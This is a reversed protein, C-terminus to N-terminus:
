FFSFGFLLSATKYDTYFTPVDVIHRSTSLRFELSLFDNFKFGLGLMYNLSSRLELNNGRSFQLEKDIESDYVILANAFLKSQDNFFFYHRLGFPFEISSYKITSVQNRSPQEVTKQFKQYTPEFIIGWKNRNFPLIIEIEAGFRFNLESGFDTNRTTSGGDEIILSSRNIGPRLTFHLKAKAGKAFYNVFKSEVCNNYKIFVEVLDDGSYSLNRIDPRVQEDCKLNNFLQGKYDENIGVRNGSTRYKKYVLQQVDSGRNQFFYRRINKENYAYLTAEGEVLVKLFLTDREFDPQREWSMDRVIESSRDIDVIFRRFKSYNDIGFEKVTEISKSNVESDASSKYKFETPNNKWDSNKILCAERENNETIFYGPEFKVQALCSTSYSLFVIIFLIRKM